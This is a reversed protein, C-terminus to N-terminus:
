DAERGGEQAQGHLSVYGITKTEKMVPEGELPLPAVISVTIRGSPLRAETSRLQDTVDHECTGPGPVKVDTMLTVRNVQDGQLYVSPLSVDRKAVNTLRLLRRGSDPELVEAKITECM